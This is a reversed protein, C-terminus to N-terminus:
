QADEQRARRWDRCIRWVWYPLTIVLQLATALLVWDEVTYGLVLAGSVGVPAVMTVTAAVADGATSAVQHPM